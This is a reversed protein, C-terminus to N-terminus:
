VLNICITTNKMRKLKGLILYVFDCYIVMCVSNYYITFYQITVGIDYYIYLKVYYVDAIWKQSIM